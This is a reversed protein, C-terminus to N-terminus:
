STKAGVKRGIKKPAKLKRLAKTEIQRIRERTVGIKLGIEDLTRDGEGDLGFRMTIVSREKENLREMLKMAEEKTQLEEMIDQPSPSGDKLIDLISLEECGKTEADLSLAPANQNLELM